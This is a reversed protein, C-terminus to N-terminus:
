LISLWCCIGKVLMDNNTNDDVISSTAMIWITHNGSYTSTFQHQINNSSGGNLSAMQITDNVIEFQTYENHLLKINIDITGSPNTGFNEVEITVKTPANVMTDIVFLEYPKNFGIIPFNSSFM